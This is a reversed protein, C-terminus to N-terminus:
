RSFSLKAVNDNPSSSRPPSLLGVLLADTDVEKLLRFIRLGRESFKAMVDMLAPEHADYRAILSRCIVAGTWEDMNRRYGKSEIIRLPERLSKGAWKKGIDELSYSFLRLRRKWFRSHDFSLLDALTRLGLKAVVRNSQHRHELHCCPSDNHRSLKDSYTVFQMGKNRFGVYTTEGAFNVVQHVARHYPKYMRADLYNQLDRADLCSDTYFDLACDVRNILVPKDSALCKQLYRFADDTPQQLILRAKLGRRWMWRGKKSSIWAPRQIFSGCLSKLNDKEVQRL